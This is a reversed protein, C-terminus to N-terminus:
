YFANDEVSVRTVNPMCDVPKDEVSCEAFSGNMPTSHAFPQGECEIYNVTSPPIATNEVFCDNDDVDDDVDVDDVDVDDVDVDVVDVDIVPNHLHTGDNKMEKLQILMTMLITM